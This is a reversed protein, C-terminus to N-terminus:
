STLAIDEFAVRSDLTAYFGTILGARMAFVQQPEYLPIVPVDRALIALFQEYLKTRETPDFTAAAKNTLDTAEKNSYGTLFGDYANFGGALEDPDMIDTSYNAIDSEYKENMWDSNKVGSDLPNAVLQINLPKLEQQLIQAVTSQVFDGASINVKLTFGNPFASQALEARAATLDFRAGDPPPPVLTMPLISGSPAGMGALAAKVIATRDIALSMARRVHVDALPATHENLTWLYPAAYPFATVTVAKNDRLSSVAAFPPDFILDVQNGQLQLIRTNDDPVMRFTISDLYPKGKQWYHPNRVLRVYSGKVWTDLMFPGTGVPHQYFQDRPKGEYDKPVVGASYLALDALLPAYPTTTHIVVTQPDSAVVTDIAGYLYGFLANKARAEDISFVVDASTMPTGDSFKVGPRLHFTWTTKDASLDYGTALQPQLTKGDLSPAYLGQYMQEMVIIGDRGIFKSKDLGEPEASWAVTLDGGTKISPSISPSVKGKGGSCASLVLVASLFALAPGHFRRAHVM